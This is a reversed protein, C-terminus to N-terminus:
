NCQHQYNYTLTSAGTANLSTIKGDGDFTYALNTISGGDFISKIPNKAKIIRYGQTTQAIDWYDGTQSPKDTYYEVTQVNGESTITTPNGGSWAVTIISAAGGSSSTSTQKILETGSYDFALNSWSTGSENTETRVNAALGNPNATVILKSSFTGSTTTTAVANNGSYSYTTVSSGSTMTAIRGDDNYTLNVSTGSGPTITIIRCNPKDDDKSCSSLSATLGLCLLAQLFFLHKKM